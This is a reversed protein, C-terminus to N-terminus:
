VTSLAVGDNAGTKWRLATGVEVAVLEITDGADAFTLTNNGTQNVTTACTVVCNGGDVDMALILRQGECSPAALTRTEAGGTALKCQGSRTVAIAEGDGPDAVAYQLGDPKGKNLLLYGTTTTSAKAAAAKGAWYKTETSTFVSNSSDYFIDQGQTWAQSAASTVQVRGETLLPATDGSVMANMAFTVLLGLLVVAGSAITASATYNVREGSDKYTKM